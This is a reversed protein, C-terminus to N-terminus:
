ENRQNLNSEVGGKQWRCKLVIFMLCFCDNEWCAFLQMYQVYETLHSVCSSLLEHMIKKKKISQTM